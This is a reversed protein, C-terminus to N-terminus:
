FDPDTGPALLLEHESIPCYPVFWKNGALSYSLVEGGLAAYSCLGLLYVNSNNSFKLLENLCIYSFRRRLMPLRNLFTRLTGRNDRPGPLM